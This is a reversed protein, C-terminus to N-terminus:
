QFKIGKQQYSHLLKLILALNKRFGILLEKADANVKQMDRMTDEPNEDNYILAQEFDKVVQGFKFCSDLCKEFIDLVNEGKKSLFCMDYVQNVFVSHAKIIGIIGKKALLNQMFENKNNDIVSARLFTEYISVFNGLETQACKLKKSLSLAFKKTPADFGIGFHAFNFEPSFDYNEYPNQPADFEADPKALKKAISPNKPKTSVTKFQKLFILKANVAHKARKLHLLFLFIKNYQQIIEGNFIIGLPFPAKLLISFEQNNFYKKSKQNIGIRDVVFHHAISPNIKKVMQYIVDSFKQNSVVFQYSDMETLLELFSEEIVHV